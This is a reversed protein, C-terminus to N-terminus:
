SASTVSSHRVPSAYVMQMYIVDYVTPKTYGSLECGKWSIHEFNEYYYLQRRTCQMMVAFMM